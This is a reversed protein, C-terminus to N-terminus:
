KSFDLNENQFDLNENQFDLNENQFISTKMKLILTKMKGWNPKGLPDKNQAGPGAGMVAVRAAEEATGRPNGPPERYFPPLSTSISIWLGHAIALNIEKM